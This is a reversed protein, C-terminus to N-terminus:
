RRSMDAVDCAGNILSKAGNGSGSESVTINVDPNQEHLVRRVGQRDARGDDLRGGRDQQSGGM